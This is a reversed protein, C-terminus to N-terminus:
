FSNRYKLHLVVTKGFLRSNYNFNMRLNKYMSYYYLIQEFYKNDYM